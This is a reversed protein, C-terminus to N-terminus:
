RMYRIAMAFHPISLLFSLFITVYIQTEPPYSRNLIGPPHVPHSPPQSLLSTARHPPCSPQTSTTTNPSSFSPNLLKLASSSLISDSVPHPAHSMCIRARLHSWFDSCIHTTKLKKKKFCLKPTSIEKEWATPELWVQLDIGSAVSKVDSRNGGKVNMREKQM